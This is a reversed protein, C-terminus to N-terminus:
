PSNVQNTHCLVEKDNLCLGEAGAAESGLFVEDLIRAAEGAGLREAEASDERGGEEQGGWLHTCNM